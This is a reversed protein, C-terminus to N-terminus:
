GEKRVILSVGEIKEVRAIEGQEIIGGDLSKVRWQVDNITACGTNAKNDVTQTIVVEKGVIRDIDTKEPNLKISKVAHNRILVFCVISVTIFLICQTTISANFMAGILAVLAGMAFWICVLGSTLAEAVAFVIIAIGWLIEFNQVVDDGKKDTIKDSKKFFTM